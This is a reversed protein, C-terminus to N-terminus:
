DAIDFTGWGMGTSSKSFARGEMVGVLGLYMLLNAVSEEDMQNRFRRIRVVAEWGPDWMSRIRIDPKNMGVRVVHKCLFPDGKTIRVLPVRGIVDYGDAEVFLSLKAYTMKINTLRCVDVLGSRFATAPIGIWGDTSYHKSAEFCEKPVKAERIVKSKAKSGQMHKELLQDAIKKPFANMVLPANGRIKFAVTAIDPKQILIEKTESKSM